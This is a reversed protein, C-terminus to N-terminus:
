HHAAKKFRNCFELPIYPPQVINPMTQCHEAAATSLPLKNRGPPTLVQLCYKCGPGQSVCVPNSGAWPDSSPLHALLHKTKLFLKLFMSRALILVTWKHRSWLGSFAIFCTVGNVEGPKWNEQNSSSTSYTFRPQWADKHRLPSTLVSPQHCFNSDLPVAWTCVTFSLPNPISTVRLEWYNSINQRLYLGGWLVMTIFRKEKERQSKRM